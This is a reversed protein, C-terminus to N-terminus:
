PITKIRADRRRRANRTTLRTKEFDFLALFVGPTTRGADRLFIHRFGIFLPNIVVRLEIPFEVVIETVNESLDAHDPIIGAHSAVPAVSATRAGSMSGSRWARVPAPCTCREGSAYTSSRRTAATSSLENVARM